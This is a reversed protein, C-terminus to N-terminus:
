TTLMTYLTLEAQSPTGCEVAVMASALAEGLNVTGDDRFSYGAVEGSLGYALANALEVRATRGTINDLVHASEHAAIIQTPTCRAGNHYNQDVDARMAEWLEDPNEVYFSNIWVRNGQTAGYTGSDMPEFGVYVTGMDYKDAMWDVWYFFDDYVPQASATPATAMAALALAAAAVIKKM